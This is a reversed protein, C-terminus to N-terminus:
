RRPESDWLIRIPTSVWRRNPERSRLTDQAVQQLPLTHQISAGSFQLDVLNGTAPDQSVMTTYGQFNTVDHVPFYSDPTQFSSIPNAGNFFVFDLQGGSANQTVFDAKGDGNVDAAGVVHQYSGNLMESSTAQQGTFWVLDIQGTSSNQTAIATRGSGDFDGAAVVSWYSGLKLDSTQPGGSNIYVLDIQGTQANQTVLQLKGDFMGEAVVPWSRMVLNTQWINQGNYQVYDIAGNSNQTLEASPLTPGQFGLANMVEFDAKHMGGTGVTGDFPDELSSTGGSINDDQIGGAQWDVTDKGIGTAFDAQDTAGGDISFYTATSGDPREYFRVNQASFRFMGLTDPSGNSDVIQRGMAQTLEHVAVNFLHTANTFTSIGVEGDYTPPPSLSVGLVKAEAPSINFSTQGALSTGAPLSAFAALQDATTEHSILLTRINSYTDNAGKFRGGSVHPDSLMGGGIDGWGVEINIQVSSGPPGFASGLMQAAQNMTPIFWSPTTPQYASSDFFLNIKVQL